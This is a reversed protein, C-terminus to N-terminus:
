KKRKGMLVNCLVYAAVLVIISVLMVVYSVWVEVKAGFFYINCDISDKIEEVVENSWGLSLMEKFMGNMAANRILSAGYTGPLFALVNQLGSGFSHISM